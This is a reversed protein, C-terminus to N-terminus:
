PNGGPHSRSLAARWSALARAAASRVVRTEERAHLHATVRSWLAADIWPRLFRRLVAVITKQRVSRERSASVRKQQATDGWATILAVARDQRMRQALSKLSYEALRHKVITDTEQLFTPALQGLRTGQPRLSSGLDSMALRSIFKQPSHRPGRPTISSLKLIRPGDEESSDSESDYTKTRHPSGSFTLASMNDRALVEVIRRHHGGKAIRRHDRGGKDWGCVRYPQARTFSTEASVPRPHRIAFRKSPASVFAIRIERPRPYFVRFGQPCGPFPELRKNTPQPSM